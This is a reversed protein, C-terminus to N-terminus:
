YLSGTSPRLGFCTPTINTHIKIYIKFREFNLLYHTQQYTSTIRKKYGHIRADHILTLINWINRSMWSLLLDSNNTVVLHQLYLKNSSRIIHSHKVRFMYLQKCPILYQVFLTMKNSCKLALIRKRLKSHRRPCRLM